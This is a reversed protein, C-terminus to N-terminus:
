VCKQRKLRMHCSRSYSESKRILGLELMMEIQRDVESKLQDPIRYAKFRKPVFDKDVHIEHLSVDTYGPVDSFVPPYKNLVKLIESQQDDSLHSLSQKDIKESPMVRFSENANSVDSDPMTAKDGFDTDVDYILACMQVKADCNLMDCSVDTIHVHSVCAEDVRVVFKRLKNAHLLYRAGNLEALYSYPSKVEV